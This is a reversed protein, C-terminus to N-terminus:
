SEVKTETVGPQPKEDKATAIPIDKKDDTVMSVVNDDTKAKKKPKYSREERRNDGEDESDSYENQPVIRKDSARISIREDPSEKDEDESDEAIGDEPLAAVLSLSFM